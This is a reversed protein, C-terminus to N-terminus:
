LSSQLKALEVIIRLVWLYERGVYLIEVIWDHVHLVPSSHCSRDFDIYGNGLQWVLKYISRRFFWM